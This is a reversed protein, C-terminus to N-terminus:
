PIILIEKIEEEVEELRELLSQYNRDGIYIQEGDFFNEIRIELNRKTEFLEDLEMTTIKVCIKQPTHTFRVGACLIQWQDLVGSEVNGDTSTNMM